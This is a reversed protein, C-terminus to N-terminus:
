RRFGNFGRIVRRTPRYPQTTYVPQGSGGGWHRTRSKSFAKTHQGFGTASSGGYVRGNHTGTQGGATVRRNNGQSVVGSQSVHAGDRGINLQMNHAVGLPGGGAGVSNSLAIGDPGAGVSFGHGLGVGNKKRSSSHAFQLAGSASAGSGVVGRGIDVWSGARQASVRTSSVVTIIALAAIWHISTRHLSTRSLLKTTM